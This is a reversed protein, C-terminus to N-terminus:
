YNEMSSHNCYWQGEEYERGLEDQDPEDQLEPMPEHKPFQLGNVYDVGKPTLRMPKENDGSGDKQLFGWELLDRLYQDKTDSYALIDCFYYKLIRYHHQLLM